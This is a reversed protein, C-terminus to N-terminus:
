RRPGLAWNLGRMARGLVGDPGPLSGRTRLWKVADRLTQEPPRPAFGLEARAKSSDVYWFHGGMALATAEDGELGFADEVRSLARAWLDNARQSLPFTPAPVGSAKELMVFFAEVTMNAGGLLYREGPKGKELAAVVAQAADRVDVFSLGGPPVAAIERRLFRVIEKSSSLAEDGPGLLLSPQVVVV